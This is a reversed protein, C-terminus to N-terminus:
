ETTHDEVPADRQQKALALQLANQILRCDNTYPVSYDVFSGLVGLIAFPKYSKFRISIPIGILVGTVCGLIQRNIMCSTLMKRLEQVDETDEVSQENPRSFFMPVTHPNSTIYQLRTSLWLIPQKFAGLRTNHESEIRECTPQSNEYLEQISRITAKM